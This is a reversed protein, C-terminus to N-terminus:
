VWVPTEEREITVAKVETDVLGRDELDRLFGEVEGWLDIIENLGSMSPAEALRATERAIHRILKGVFKDNRM